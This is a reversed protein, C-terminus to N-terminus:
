CPIAWNVHTHIDFISGLSQRLYASVHSNAIDRPLPLPRWPLYMRTWDLLGTEVLKMHYLCRKIIWINTDDKNYWKPVGSGQLRCGWINDNHRWSISFTEASSTRQSPFWRDGTSVVWLPALLASRQHEKTTLRLLRKFLCEISRHYLRWSPWKVDIFFKYIYIYIKM